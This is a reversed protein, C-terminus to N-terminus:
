LRTVQARRTRLRVCSLSIISLILPLIVTLWMLAIMPSSKTVLYKSVCALSETAVALLVALIIKTSQRHRSFKTSLMVALGIASLSIPLLPSSLRQYGEAILESASSNTNVSDTPNLLQYIFLENIERYSRKEQENKGLDILYYDFYLINIHKTKVEHEQRNGNIMVAHPGKPTNVLIGKEAVFTILKAPNRQDHLMIGLLNGNAQFTHFYITINDGLSCFEGERPIINEMNHKIQWQLEKFVRYGMPILYTNLLFCLGTTAIAVFFAPQSLRIPSLGAAAMVLLEQDVTMKNYVFLMSAFSAIPLVISLWTPMLMITLYIFTNISLSRNVLLDVFRLSQSLWIVFTLSIIIFLMATVIQRLVYLKFCM